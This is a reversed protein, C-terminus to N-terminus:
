QIDKVKQYLGTAAGADWNDYVQKSLDPPLPLAECNNEEFLRHIKGATQECLMCEGPTNFVKRMRDYINEFPEEAINGFSLNLFECPQVDGKANIYFRDTGGATCGFIEPSEEIIQASVSPYNRYKKATNYMNIKHIAQKIDAESFFGDGKKLWAGAPKPKIMQVLTAQKEKATDMIKEFTGNYFAEKMLCTNFAVPINMEHCLEVGNEMQAWADDRGMFDNLDEANFSHLSFMVGSIRIDSLRERTMGYGTSNVWIEASDSIADCVAKLRDFKLFPDGGEINFFCVGAKQLYKVADVVLDLSVDAGKDFRQYCHKCRFACANTISVLVGTCPLKEGFTKFKDCAVFFAKSSFNPVYLDLRVQNGIKTFKNHSIKSLFLLLRRILAAFRQISLEKRFVLPLYHFFVAMKVKLLIWQKM